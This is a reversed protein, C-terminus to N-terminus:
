GLAPLVVEGVLGGGGAAGGVEGGLEVVVGFDAERGM